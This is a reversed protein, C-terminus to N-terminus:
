YRQAAAMLEDMAISCGRPEAGGARGRLEVEGRIVRGLDATQLAAVSDVNALDLHRLIGLEGEPLVALTEPDVAVSRVWGPALHRRESIAGGAGAVADYLQSSMETMGYENVVWRREVGLREGMMRYLEERGVQRSRGKFGGTDMIRSGSPLVVRLGRSEMTDFLHVFAFSTGAVLVPESGAGVEQLRILLSELQLGDADAFFGSGESGLERVVESIMFSLSSDDAVEFSAVLSLIPLSDLDALMHRRFGASLASRYLSTDLLYHVGRHSDGQTTGSTRFAAEARGADGCVLPAVKFADTPVAPIDRWGGISGPDASRAECFRRYVPNREYQHAFVALAVEDFEGDSVVAEPGRGILSAVREGVQQEGPNRIM